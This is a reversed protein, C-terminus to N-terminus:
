VKGYMIARNCSYLWVRHASVFYKVSFSFLIHEKHIRVAM